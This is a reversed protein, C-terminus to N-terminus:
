LKVYSNEIQIHIIYLHLILFVTHTYISVGFKKISLVVVVVVLINKPNNKKNNYNFFIFFLHVWKNFM